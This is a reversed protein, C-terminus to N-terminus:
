EKEKELEFILQIKEKKSFAISNELEIKRMLQVKICFVIKKINEYQLASDGLINLINKFCEYIVNKDILRTKYREFIISAYYYSDARVSFDCGNKCGKCLSCELYPRFKHKNLKWFTSRQKIEESSVDLRIGYEERIDRTTVLQASDLRNYFFYAEGPRLRSLNQKCDESMNTSDAILEKEVNQVLRFSVKIDTNAVIERSVKSPAQDAILISTGYSRIEAIMSQLARITTGASDASSNKTEANGGLLVHAEDILIVNKLKGDGSHNNKTYSCINILLLAIILAKQEMNEIANLELVTPKSLIDEIPITHINDYINRNQELLNTLRLLGGSEINNKVEQSYNSRKILKKFVLIFEHMGFARCGKDGFKSYSKWGYETYSQNIAKLFFMDLPEPMSFAAQFATVLSPVYQEVTINKPPIFPNLVFPAIENNGPTFIQLGDIKDILARYEAKTPEIALFPIQQNAFQLLLDVSFTTKGSGPTGVILGHKTFSNLPCGIRVKNTNTSIEGIQINDEYFVEESFKNLQNENKESEISTMGKEYLPLRFFVNVEESTMLYPLRMLVNAMPISDILQANRYKHLLLMNLNFPYINNQMRVDINESSLDLCIYESDIIKETGSKLLSVVKTALFACENENGNLIINYNFLPTRQKKLYYEIVKAPEEATNDRISQGQVFVGSSYLKLESSIESFALAETETLSTPFIQFSIACNDMQSMEKLISFFNDTSKSGVVDSYYYVCPSISSYMTKEAKNVAFMKGKDALGVLNLYREYGANDLSKSMYNMSSLLTIISQGVDNIIKQMKETDGSIMRLVVYIHTQSSISYDKKKENLWLFELSFKYSKTLMYVENILNNFGISVRYMKEDSDDRNPFTLVEIVGAGSYTGDKLEKVNVYSM